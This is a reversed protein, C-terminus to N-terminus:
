VSETIAGATRAHGAALRRSHLRRQVVRVDIDRRGRPPGPHHEIPIPEAGNNRLGVDGIRVLEVFVRAAEHLVFQHMLEERVFRDSQPLIELSEEPPQFGGLDVAPPPEEPVPVDFPDV